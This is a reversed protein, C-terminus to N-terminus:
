VAKRFIFKIGDLVIVQKVKVLDGRYFVQKKFPIPLCRGDHQDEKSQGHDPVINVAKEDVPWPRASYKGPIGSWERM